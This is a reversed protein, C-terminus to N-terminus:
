KVSGAVLHLFRGGLQEAEERAHTVLLTVLQEAEVLEGLEAVLEQRLRADLSSFPEDLLLVRPSRALARALAVRQAEGGSLTAPKRAAANELKLRAMWRAVDETSRAGFAVNQEVTLHPFLASTQFVYGVERREPPLSDWSTDNLRVFGADLKLLGAIARLTSTKGSGSPGFLTTVGVGAELSLDLSFTGFRALLKARLVDGRM